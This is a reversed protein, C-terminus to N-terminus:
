FINQLLRWKMKLYGELCPSLSPTNRGTLLIENCVVDHDVIMKKSIEIRNDAFYDDADAFIISQFGRLYGM